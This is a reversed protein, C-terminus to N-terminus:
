GGSRWNDTWAWIDLDSRYNENTDPGFKALVAQVFATELLARETQSQSQGALFDKQALFWDHGMGLVDILGQENTVILPAEPSRRLRANKGLGLWGPPRLGVLLFNTADYKDMQGDKGVETRYIPSAFCVVPMWSSFSYYIRRSSRHAEALYRKCQEEDINEQMWSYVVSWHYHSKDLFAVFTEVLDTVVTSTMWAVTDQAAFGIFDYLGSAANYLINESHVKKPDKGDKIEILATQTVPAESGPIEIRSFQHALYSRAFDSTIPFCVAVPPISRDCIGFVEVDRRVKCEIPIQLVQQIGFTDGLEYEDMITVCCDIERMPEGMAETGYIVREADAALGSYTPIGKDSRRELKRADTQRAFESAARLVRIELPLGAMELLNTVGRRGGESELWTSM